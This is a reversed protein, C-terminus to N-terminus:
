LYNNLIKTIKESIYKIDKRTLDVHLPLALSQSSVLEAVPFDGKKYDFMKRIYPQLHLVPLYPKTQIGEKSLQEIIKERKNNLLRIVYVFWSHFNGPAVKPLIIAPTNKLYENYWGVIEERKNILFNIKKLQTIGLSASMENMRYNFGLREHYLWDNNINRGQNRLSKCLNIIKNSNSVIMGGEGTTIQKNPYFAFVGVDGMVGCMKDKHFSGISECADEIIRLKYRSSIELISSMDAAQGFIHVVLIAKSRKTINPNKS